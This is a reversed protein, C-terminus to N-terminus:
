GRGPQGSLSRSALIIRPWSPSMQTTFPPRCKPLNDECSLRFCETVEAAAVSVEINIIGGTQEEANRKVHKKNQMYSHTSTSTWSSVFCPMGAGVLNRGEVLVRPYKPDRIVKRVTGLQGKDRGALIMVTDGRLIKWKDREFMAKLAKRHPGMNAVSSQFLQGLNLKSWAQCQPAHGGCFTDLGM